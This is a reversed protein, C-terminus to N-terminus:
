RAAEKNVIVRGTEWLWVQTAIYARDWEAQRTERDWGGKRGDFHDHAEPCAFATFIDHCKHGHGRGHKQEGSHCPVSPGNCQHPFQAFCPAHHALDTLKKNRYTM